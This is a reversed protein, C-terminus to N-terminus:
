KKLMAKLLVICLNIDTEFERKANKQYKEPSNGEGKKCVYNEWPLTVYERNKLITFGFKTAKYVRYCGDWKNTHVYDGELCPKLKKVLEGNLMYYWHSYKPTASEMIFDMTELEEKKM